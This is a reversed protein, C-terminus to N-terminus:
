RGPYPVEPRRRWGRVQLHHRLATHHSRAERAAAVPTVAGKKKATAMAIVRTTIMMMVLIEAMEPRAGAATATEAMTAAAEMMGLTGATTGQSAGAGVGSVM